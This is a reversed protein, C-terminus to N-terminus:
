RPVSPGSCRRSCRAAAASPVSVPVSSIGSCPARPRGHLSKLSSRSASLKATGDTCPVQCPVTPSAPRVSVPLQCWPASTASLKLRSVNTAALVGEGTSPTHSPVSSAGRWPVSRMWIASLLSRSPRSYQTSSLGSWSAQCMSQPWTRQVLGSRASSTGATPPAQRPVSDASPAASLPVQVCPPPSRGSFSSRWARASSGGGAGCIVVSGASGGAAAAASGASTLFSKAAASLSPGSAGAVEAPTATPTTRWPTRRTNASPVARGSEIKSIPESVLVKVPRTSACISSCPLTCRFSGTRSSSGGPVTALGCPSSIVSRSRM